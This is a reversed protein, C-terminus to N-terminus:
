QEKIYKGAYKDQKKANEDSWMPQLNDLAWCKKFDDDQDSEYTFWSDPIIHDIEWQGLCQGHNNWSMGPEFLLELHYMLEEISYSLSKNISQSKTKHRLKLKHNIGSSINHRIRKQIDSTNSKNVPPM